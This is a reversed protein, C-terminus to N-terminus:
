GEIAAEPIVPMAGRPNQSLVTAGPKPKTLGLITRLEDADLDGGMAYFTKAASLLEASNPKDIEFVWFFSCEDLDPFNYKAIIRVFQDTLTQALSTADYKVIRSLVASRFEAEGGGISIGSVKHLNTQLIASYMVRDFYETVLNQLLQAGANSPEIRQVPSFNVDPKKPFLLTTNRHQMSAAKYVEEFSAASGAEYFYITLGGAGVRELYDLLWRQVQNRLWWIWYLRSRLGVGGIAGGGFVERFDADEPEFRHVIISEREHKPFFYAMGHQTRRLCSRDQVQASAAWVPNVLIGVQGEWDFILKDGNIPVINKVLMRRKGLIYKFEYAVQVGYKGYWLAEQLHLLMGQLNPTRRILETIVSAAEQAAPSEDTSQVHFSLQCTPIQRSRLADFLVPDRRMAQANAWSHRLAEDSYLTYTRSVQNVISAFTYIHPVASPTGPPLGQLETKVPDLLPNPADEVKM